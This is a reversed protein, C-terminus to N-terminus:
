KDNMKELAERAKTTLLNLDIAWNLRCAQDYFELADRAVELKKSLGYITESMTVSIPNMIKQQELQYELERNKDSLICAMVAAKQNSQYAIEAAHLKKQLEEIESELQKNKMIVEGMDCMVDAQSKNDDKLQKIESQYKESALKYGSLFINFYHKRVNYSLQPVYETFKFINNAKEFSERVEDDTIM